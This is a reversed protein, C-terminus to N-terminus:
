NEDSTLTSATVPFTNLSFKNFGLPGFSDITTWIKGDEFKPYVIYRNSYLQEEKALKTLTPYSLTISAGAMKTCVNAWEGIAEIQYFYSIIKYIASVFPHPPGRSLGTSIPNPLTKM